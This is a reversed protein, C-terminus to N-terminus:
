NFVIFSSIKVLKIIVVSYSHFNYKETRLYTDYKILHHSTNIIKCFFYSTNINKCNQHIYITLYIELFFDLLM